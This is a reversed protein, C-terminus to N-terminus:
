IPRNEARDPFRWDKGKLVLCVGGEGALRAFISQGLTAIFAEADGNGIFLSQLMWEYRYDFLYNLYVFDAKSEFIKDGEDVVLHAVTKGYTREIYEYPDDQRKIDSLLKQAKVVVFNEGLSAWHDCLAWKFRTKGTSNNGLILASSGSTIAKKQASDKFDSLKAGKYRDPVMESLERMLYAIEIQRQAEKRESEAKELRAREEEAKRETYAVYKGELAQRASDASLGKPVYAIGTERCFAKIREEIEQERREASQALLERFSTYNESM